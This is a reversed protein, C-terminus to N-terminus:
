KVLRVHVSEVAPAQTHTGAAVGIHTNAVEGQLLKTPISAAAQSTNLAKQVAPALATAVVGQTFLAQEAL